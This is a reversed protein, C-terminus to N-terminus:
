SIAPGAMPNGLNQPPPNIFYAIFVGKNNKVGWGGGLIQTGDLTVRM